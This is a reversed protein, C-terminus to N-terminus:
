PQEFGGHPGEAKLQARQDPTLLDHVKIAADVAKHAFGRLADLREDVLAHVRANDVRPSDWQALLEKHATDHAAKLAVGENFLSDKIANVQQKQADTAKLDDLKNDVRYSIFRYAKKADFPGGHHMRGPGFGALLVLASVGALASIVIKKNM